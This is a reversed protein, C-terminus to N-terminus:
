RVLVVVGSKSVKEGKSTSLEIVWTYTGEKCPEAKYTGDWGTQASSSHFLEQGWRDYIKLDFFKYSRLVPLFVDNNQDNNPTFANPVYLAFDAAVSLPKLITDACGFKNKTVLVTKYDGPESYLYTVDKISTRFVKHDNFYWNYVLPGEGQSTNTFIVEDLNEIPQAPLFEFDAKPKEYVKIQYSQSSKCGSVANILTGNITYTGSEKFCQQFSNQTFFTQGIRWTTQIPDNGLGIFNFTGCYPACVEEKFNKLLGEPLALIDM